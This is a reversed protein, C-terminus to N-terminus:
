ARWLARTCSPRDGHAAGMSTYVGVLHDALTDCVMPGYPCRVTFNLPRADAGSQLRPHVSDERVRPSVVSERPVRWRNNPMEGM